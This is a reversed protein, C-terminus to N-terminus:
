SVARVADMFETGPHARQYALAKNHLALGAPDVPKGDAAFSAGNGKVEPGDGLDSEGFQVVVPLAQLVEKLAAGATIKDAGEAFSVSAHGPLADFIAVVKDKLAPLLRGETVLQEAFAVHNAHNAAAERKAMDSERKQLDAERAAFAPDIQQTVPPDEKPKPQPPPEAPATFRAQPEDAEDLWDIEWSPLLKDATELGDRAIM